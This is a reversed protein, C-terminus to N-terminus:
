PSELTQIDKHIFQGLRETRIFTHGHTQGDAKAPRRLQIMSKNALPGTPANETFSNILTLFDLKRAERSFMGGIILVTSNNIKHAYIFEVNTSGLCNAYLNLKVNIRKLKRNEYRM